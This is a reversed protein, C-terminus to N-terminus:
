SHRDAGSELALYSPGEYDVANCALGVDNTSRTTWSGAGLLLDGHSMM